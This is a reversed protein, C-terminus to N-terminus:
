FGGRTRRTWTQGHREPSCRGVMSVRDRHGGVVVRPSYAEFLASPDFFEEVFLARPPISPPNSTPNYTCAPPIFGGVKLLSHSLSLCLYLSVVDAFVTCSLRRTVLQSKPVDTRTRTCTRTHSHTHTAYVHTHRYGFGNPKRDRERQM